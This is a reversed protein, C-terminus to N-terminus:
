WEYSAQLTQFKQLIKEKLEQAKKELASVHEEAKEISDLGNEEKLRKMGEQLRGSLVGENKEAEKLIKDLRNMEFVIGEMNNKEV